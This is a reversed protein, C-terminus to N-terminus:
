KESLKNMKTRIKLDDFHTRKLITLTPKSLAIGLLLAAAGALQADDGTDEGDEAAHSSSAEINDLTPPPAIDKVKRKFSKVCHLGGAGEMDRVNEYYDALSKVLVFRFKHREEPCRCRQCSAHCGWPPLPWPRGGRALPRFASRLVCM